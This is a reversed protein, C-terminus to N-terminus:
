VIAFAVTVDAEIQVTGGGRGNFAVTATVPANSQNSLGKVNVRLDDLGLQAPTPPVRDVATVAFGEVNFEDLM